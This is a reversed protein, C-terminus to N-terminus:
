HTMLRQAYDDLKTRSYMGYYRYQGNKYRYVNVYKEGSNALGDNTLLIEFPVKSAEVSSAFQPTVHADSGFSMNLGEDKTLMRVGGNEEIDLVELYEDQGDGGYEIVLQPKSSRLAYVPYVKFVQSFSKEFIRQGNSESVIFQVKRTRFATSIQKVIYTIQKDNEDQSLWEGKMLVGDQPCMPPTQSVTLNEIPIITSSSAQNCAFQMVLLVLYSIVLVIKM